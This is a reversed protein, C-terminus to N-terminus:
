KCTCGMDCTCECNNGCRISFSGRSGCSISCSSSALKPLPTYLKSPESRFTQELASLKLANQAAAITTMALLCGFLCVIGSMKTM